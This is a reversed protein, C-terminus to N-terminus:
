ILTKRFVPCDSGPSLSNFSCCPFNQLHRVTHQDVALLFCNLFLPNRNLLGASKVVTQARFIGKGAKASIGSMNVFLM